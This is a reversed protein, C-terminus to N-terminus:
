GRVSSSILMGAFWGVSGGGGATLEVGAALKRSFFALDIRRCQDFVCRSVKGGAPVGIFDDFRTGGEGCLFLDGISDM